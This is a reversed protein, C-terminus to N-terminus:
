RKRARLRAVIEPVQGRARYIRSHGTNVPIGLDAAIEPMAEGHIEFRVFVERVDESLDAIVARAFAVDEARETEDEPSAAMEDEMGETFTAEAHQKRAAHERRKAVVRWAIGSLLAPTDLRSARSRHAQWLAEQVDDASGGMREITIRLFREHARTLGEALPPMPAREKGAKPPRRLSCM